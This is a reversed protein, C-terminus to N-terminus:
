KMSQPSIMVNTRANVVPTMLIGSSVHSKRSTKRITGIDMSEFIWSMEPITMPSRTRACRTSCQLHITAIVFDVKPFFVYPTKGETPFTGVPIVLDLAPIAGSVM